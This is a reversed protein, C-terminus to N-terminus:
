GDNKDPEPEADLKEPIDELDIENIATWYAQNLSIKEVRQLVYHWLGPMWGRRIMLKVWASAPNTDTLQEFIAFTEDDMKDAILRTEIRRFNFRDSTYWRTNGSYVSAQWYDISGMGFQRVHTPDEFAAAHLWYPVIIDACAGVKLVRWLEGMVPLIHDLHEFVNLSCAYGISETEFPWPPVQLDFCADPENGPLVDCNIAGKIHNLGCGLNLWPKDGPKLLRYNNTASKPLRVLKSDAM